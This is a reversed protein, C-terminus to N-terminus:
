LPQILLLHLSALVRIEGILWSYGLFERMNRESVPPPLVEVLDIEHHFINGQYYGHLTMELSIEDEASGALLIPDEWNEGCLTVSGLWKGLAMNDRFLRPLRDPFDIKRCYGYGVLNQDVWAM